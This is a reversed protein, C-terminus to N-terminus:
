PLWDMMADTVREPAEWPVFHGAGEIREITLDNILVDLGELM